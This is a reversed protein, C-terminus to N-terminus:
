TVLGQKALADYVSGVWPAYGTKLTEVLTRTAADVSTRKVEADHINPAM